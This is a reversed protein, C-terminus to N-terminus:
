VKKKGEVVKVAGNVVRYVARLAVTSGAMVLASGAFLAVRQEYTM